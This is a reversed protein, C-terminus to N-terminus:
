EIRSYGIYLWDNGNIKKKSIVALTNTSEKCYVNAGSYEGLHTYTKLLSELAELSVKDASVTVLSADLKGDVFYYSIAHEMGGGAYYLNQADSDILEFKQMKSEIADMPAGWTLDPQNIFVKSMLESDDGCSLLSAFLIASFIIVYLRKM